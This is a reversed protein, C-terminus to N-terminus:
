PNKNLRVADKVKDLLGNIFGIKNPADLLDSAINTYENIVIPTPTDFDILECVAIRLISLSILNLRSLSWSPHLYSEIIKDYEESSKIVKCLLNELFQHEFEECEFIDKLTSIYDKLECNELKFTSKNYSVFINSYAIQVALFRATSRKIRWKKDIPKEEM